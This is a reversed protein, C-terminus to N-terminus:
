DDDLSDQFKDDIAEPYKPRKEEPKHNHPVTDRKRWDPDEEYDYSKRITERIDKKM